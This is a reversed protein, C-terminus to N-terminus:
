SKCGSGPTSFAGLVIGPPTGATQTGANVASGKRFSGRAAAKKQRRGKKRSEAGAEETQSEKTSISTPKHDLGSM